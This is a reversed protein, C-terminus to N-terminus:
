SATCSRTQSTQAAKPAAPESGSPWAATPAATRITAIKSQTFFDIGGKGQVKDTGILSDKIGGFPLYPHPAPVGVNVGVMGVDAESIFREAYHLNQTFICAGNGFPQERIQQLAQDLNEVKMVSVFPGFIENRAIEMEPTVGSFITPGVFFGKRNKEPLEPYRGDLVLTAKDREIGIEVFRRIRMVAEASIVPGMYVEPDLADGIRIGKSAETIRGILEDYVEPVAAVISGALCRQGASGYCSNLFNAIFLDWQVDEMVVLYNKAGGLLMSRKGAAGAAEAIKKGTPTSGVMCVGRVRDDRYWSLTPVHDGNVINVVGPPLGIQTFLEGMKQMFYPSQPSPKFVFTNGTGIAFPVFWGFVLAPFNFPAVGCFVGLPKRIVRGSINAAINDLTDGQVLTPIGCATELIQIVREVEGRAESIHKAQDLAIARALDELKEIMVRRLDFLYGVRKGIAERSWSKYAEHSSEIAMASMDEGSLPVQGIQEGTSPNFLPTQEVGIAEVWQGDIYNRIQIEQM